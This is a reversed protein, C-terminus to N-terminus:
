VTNSFNSSRHKAHLRSTLLASLKSLCVFIFYPLLLSFFDLGWSASSSVCTSLSLRCSARVAELGQVESIHSVKQLLKSEEDSALYVCPWFTLSVLFILPIQCFLSQQDELVALNTLQYVFSNEGPLLAQHGISTWLSLLIHNKFRIELKQM